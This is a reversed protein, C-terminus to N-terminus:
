REQYSCAILEHLGDRLWLWPVATHSLPHPPGWGQLYPSERDRWKTEASVGSLSLLWQSAHSSENVRTRGQSLM